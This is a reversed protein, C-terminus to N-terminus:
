YRIWRLIGIWRGVLLARSVLRTRRSGRSRRVGYNLHALRLGLSIRTRRVVLMERRLRSLRVGLNLCRDVLLSCPGVKHLCDLLVLNIRGSLRLSELLVLSDRDARLIVLRGPVRGLRFRPGSGPLDLLQALVLGLRAVKLLLVLGL